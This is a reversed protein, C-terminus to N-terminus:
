PALAVADAEDVAVAAADDPVAVAANATGPFVSATSGMPNPTKAPIDTIANITTPRTVYSLVFYRFANRARFNASAPEPM